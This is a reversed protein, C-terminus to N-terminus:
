KKRPACAFLPLLKKEKLGEIAKLAEKESGFGGAIVRYWTERPSVQRPVVELNRGKLFPNAMFLRADRMDMFTGLQVIYVTHTRRIILSEPGIGPLKIRQGPFIANMDKIDPNAELLFDILTVNVGNYSNKAILFLTQGKKVEIVEEAKKEQSRELLSLLRSEKAPPPPVIEKEQEKAPENLAVIMERGKLVPPSSGRHLFFYGGLGLGLLIFFGILRYHSQLQRFVLRRGRSKRPQLYDFEQIAEEIIRSDIIPRSGTYGIILARDCVLNMVRPIGGSFNWVRDVAASTFVEYLSRGVLKLRYKLYGRGEERTFPRIRRQITIREKFSDLRGSNLKEELELQGVLIIQVRGADPNHPSRLTGIDDIVKEQLIQAEDVIIAVTEDRVRREDLYSNFKLRLSDISEQEEGTPVELDALIGKLLDKFNLSPHFLFATKIRDDLNKLLAYILTTKGVGIEGTIIIIGKKEQIGCIMTSLAEFHSPALYLFKPEPKINFPDESFGYFEKYM